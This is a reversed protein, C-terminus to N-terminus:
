KSDGLIHAILRNAYNRMRPNAKPDTRALKAIAEKHPDVHEGIVDLANLALMSLSIGNKAPDAYRMLVGAARKAEAKRGYRGLAEAAIIRVSPSEDELAAVLTKRGKRIGSKGRILYGMAGWYRVAGDGSKMLKTLQETNKKGKRSAANAAQFIADFNYRSNDHGMEYPSDDGARSHIEAEPLFGIDRVKSAWSRHARRMRKM